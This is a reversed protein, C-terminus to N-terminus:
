RNPLCAAMESTTAGIVGLLAQNMCAAFERSMANTNRISTVPVDGYAEIASAKCAPYGRDLATLMAVREARYCALAEPSLANIKNKHMVLSVDLFQSTTARDGISEFLKHDELTAKARKHGQDAARRLYTYGDNKGNILLIGGYEYQAEVNGAVALPRLLREAEACRQEVVCIAKALSITATSSGQRSLARLTAELQRFDRTAAFSEIADHVQVELANDVGQAQAGSSLGGFALLLLYLLRHLRPM